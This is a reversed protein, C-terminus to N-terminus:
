SCAPSMPRTSTPQCRRTRRRPPSRVRSGHGTSSDYVRVQATDAGDPYTVGNLDGLKLYQFPDGTAPPNGDSDLVPDSIVLQHVPVNSNNTGSLTATTTSGATNPGGSPSISKTTSAAVTAPVNLTVDASSQKTNANDATIAATNTLVQGDADVPADDAVKAQVQVTVVNGPALGIQGGGLSDTFSIVLEGSTSKSIDYNSTGTVTPTGVITIYSPMPDDVVANVCGNVTGATCQFQITYTFTQGPEVTQASAAKQISMSATPDAALAPAAGLGSLGVGLLLAILAAIARKILPRRAATPVM